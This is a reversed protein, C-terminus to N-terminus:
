SGEMEDVGALHRASEHPGPESRSLPKAREYATPQTLDCLLKRPLPSEPDIALADHYAEEARDLLGVAEASQGLVCYAVILNKDLQIATQASEIAHDFDGHEFALYADLLHAEPGASGTRTAASLAAVAREPQGAMLAARGCLTWAVADNPRTQTLEELTRLAALAQGAALQLGGLRYLVRARPPMSPSAKSKGDEEHDAAETERESERAIPALVEVAEDLHGAWALILGLDEITEPDGDSLRVAERAAEVAPERLDLLQLVRAALTRMPANRDFDRMRSQILALADLRRGTTVLMEAQALVYQAVLPAKESAAMYHELATSPDDYREAVIGALFDIEPDNSLGAATQVADRAKALQGEELWVRTALKYAGANDPATGLALELEKKADDLRGARLHREAVQLRAGSRMADWRHRAEVRGAEHSSRASEGGSPEACGSTGLFACVAVPTVWRLTRASRRVIIM